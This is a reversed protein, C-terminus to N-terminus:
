MIKLFYSSGQKCLQFVHLFYWLSFTCSFIAVCSYSWFKGWFLMVSWYFAHQAVGLAYLTHHPRMHQLFNLGIQWCFESAEYFASFHISKCSPVNQSTRLRESWPFHENKTHLLPCLVNYVFRCVSRILFHPYFTVFLLIKQFHHNKNCVRKNNSVPPEKGKLHKSVFFSIPFHKM